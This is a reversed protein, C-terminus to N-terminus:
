RKAGSLMKSCGSCCRSTSASLRSYTPIGAPSACRSRRVSPRASLTLRALSLHEILAALDTVDEHINGPGSPRESRSHGRRDYTLLEFAETLAPVVSRWAAHDGWSGHVLVLPEGSGTLEYYPEVDNVRATPMTVELVAEQRTIGAEFAPL